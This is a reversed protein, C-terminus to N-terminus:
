TKLTEMLRSFQTSPKEGLREMMAALERAVVVHPELPPNWSDPEPVGAEVMIEQMVAESVPLSFHKTAALAFAQLSPFTPMVCGQVWTAVRFFERPTLERDAVSEQAPAPEPAPAAKTMYTSRKPVTIINPETKVAEPEPEQNDPKQNQRFFRKMHSMCENDDAVSTKTTRLRFTSTNGNPAECECCTSSARQFARIPDLGVARAMDMIDKTRNTM